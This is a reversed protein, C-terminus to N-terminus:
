GQAELQLVHEGHNELKRCIEVVPSGTEVQRLALTIKEATFRSARM